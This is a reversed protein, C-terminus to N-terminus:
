VTDYRLLYFGDKEQLRDKEVDKWKKIRKM